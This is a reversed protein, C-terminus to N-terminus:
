ARLLLPGTIRQNFRLAKDSKELEIRTSIEIRLESSVLADQLSGISRFFPAPFPFLHFQKNQHHTRCLQLKARSQLSPSLWLPEAARSRSPCRMRRDRILSYYSPEDPNTRRCHMRAFPRPRALSGGIPSREVRFSTSGVAVGCHASAGTFTRKPSVV